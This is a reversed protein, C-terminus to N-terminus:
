KQDTDNHQIDIHQNDHRRNTANKVHTSVVVTAFTVGSSFKLNLIPSLIENFIEFTFSLM